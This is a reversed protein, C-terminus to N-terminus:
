SASQKRAGASRTQGQKDQKVPVADTPRPSILKLPAANAPGNPEESADLESASTSHDKKGHFPIHNLSKHRMSSNTPKSASTGDLHM